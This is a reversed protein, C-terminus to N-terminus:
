GHSMRAFALVICGVGSLWDWLVLHPVLLRFRAVVLRFRSVVFLFQAFRRVFACAVCGFPVGVQVLFLLFSRGFSGASSFVLRFMASM